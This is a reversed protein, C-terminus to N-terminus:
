REEGKINVAKTLYTEGYKGKLELLVTSENWKSHEILFSQNVESTKKIANQLKKIRAKLSIIQILNLYPKLMKQLAGIDLTRIREALDKDFFPRNVIGKKNILPSGGALSASVSFIPFFTSPNDNDFACVKFEGNEKYINYNNPGHDNQFCIADLVNLNILERQLSPSIETDSDSMREGKASESIIGFLTEGNDLTIRCFDTSTIMDGLGLFDAIIKTSVSRVASYFSYKRGKVLNHTKYSMSASRMYWIFYIAIDECEDPLSSLGFADFFEKTYAQKKWINFKLKQSINDASLVKNVFASDKIKEYIYTEFAIVEADSFTTKIPMEQKFHDKSIGLNHISDFFRDFANKYYADFSMLLPCERFYYLNGDIRFSIIPNSSLNFYLLDDASLTISKVSIVSEDIHKKTLENLGARVISKFNM